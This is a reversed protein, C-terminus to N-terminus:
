WHVGGVFYEKRAHVSEIKIHGVRSTSSRHSAFSLQFTRQYNHLNTRKRNNSLSSKEFVVKTQEGLQRVELDFKIRMDDIVFEDM